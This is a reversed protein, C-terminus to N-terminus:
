TNLPMTRAEALFCCYMNSSNKHGCVSTRNRRSIRITIVTICRSEGILPHKARSFRPLASSLAGVGLIRLFERRSYM